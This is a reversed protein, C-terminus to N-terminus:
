KAYSLRTSGTCHNHILLLLNALSETDVSTLCFKEINPVYSVFRDDSFPANFETILPTRLTSLSTFYMKLHFVQPQSAQTVHKLFVQIVIDIDHTKHFVQTVRCSDRIENSVHTVNASDRTKHSVQTVISTDRSEYFVEIANDTDRTEHFM